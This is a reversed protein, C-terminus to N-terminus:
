RVLMVGGKLFSITGNEFAIETWWVFVDPNMVKGRFSGDWGFRPDNPPLNEGVFVMEGWRDFILLQKINLLKKPDGYVTFKDNIGDDNPSFVNPVFVDQSQEVIITMTAKAMCGSPSFATVTYTQTQQPSAIPNPCIFCSLGSNPTTEWLLNDFLFNAEMGLLISGGLTITTDGPFVTLLLTPLVNLHAEASQECGNADMVTITYIGAPLENFENTNQFAGNNLSFLYPESGGQVLVTIAGNDEDPCPPTIEVSVSFGEFSIITSVISDCGHQNTLQQTFTGVETSDCTTLSIVTQNSGAWQVTTIVLSDCGLANTLTQTFIGALSPDCTSSFLFTSDAEVLTLTTIVISDCGNPAPFVQTTSGVSDPDCTTGFIESTVSPLLAITQVVVSDCGETTPLVQTFVGALSPDCTSFFLFTSDTDVLTLTTSVISDCGNFAVFVETSTGALAPDCTTEFFTSSYSPLLEVTEIVLSDCGGENALAQTFVGASAPNCTTSYLFTTDPPFVTVLAAVRELPCENDCIVPCGGVWDTAPDMNTLTGHHDFLSLDSAILSGAPDDLPYWAILGPENGNLCQNLTSQIQAETRALNWIRIDDLVGRHRCCPEAYGLLLPAAVNVVPQPIVDQGVFNGNFYFSYQNGTKVVAVHYWENDAPQAFSGSYAWYGNAYGPGNIHFALGGNQLAFFWKPFNNGASVDKGIIAYGTASGLPPLNGTKKVCAELTADGTLDFFNGPPDGCNVRDNSGDFDLALPTPPPTNSAAEVWYTTTLPPVPTFPNGTFLPNGGTPADYWNYNGTAGTAVLIAAEGQCITDGSATITMTDMSVAVMTSASATCGNQLNSVTLTYTGPVNIICSGLTNEGSLINGDTTTWQYSVFIGVSSGAADLVIESGSCPMTEPPEVLAVLEVVEVTLSDSVTCIEGFFLDDLAFDNGSPQLNQNIICIEATSANGADWLAYFQQWVCTDIPTFVPGILAGNIYFQLEAQNNLEESMAWCSFAYQTNPIIAITQCWVETGPTGIGNVLMMLGNSTTHDGCTEWFPHCPYAQPLVAYMGEPTIDCAVNTYGSTFGTNGAEFGGNAILNQPDLATASLTYTTTQNVTTVPALSNQDSLGTAPSWAFGLFDGIISGNLQVQTGPACFTTDNGTSVALPCQASLKRIFFVAFLAAIFHLHVPSHM